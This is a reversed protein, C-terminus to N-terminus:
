EGMVFLAMEIDATRLSYTKERFYEQMIEITWILREYNTAWRRNNAQDFDRKYSQDPPCLILKMNDKRLDKLANGVRSDYICLKNQDSLGIIKSARSIGVGQIEILTKVAEFYDEVDVYDFAKKTIRITEQPDRLPFERRFGWLCIEDATDLDIGGNNRERSEKIASELRDRERVSDEYSKGHWSYKREQSIRLIEAENEKVWNVITEEFQKVFDNKNMRPIYRLSVRKKEFEEETIEEVM